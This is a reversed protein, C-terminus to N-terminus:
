DSRKESSLGTDASSPAFRSSNHSKPRESGAISASLWRAAQVPTLPKDERDVQLSAARMKDVTIKGILEELVRVVRPRNAIRAGLLLVADYPPFAQRPDSLLELDYAAIRGDSSFATIVEVERDRVAPYLFTSDFGRQALFQLSYTKQLRKWEPRQFFEYDGGITLTPAKPSLEVLSSLNLAHATDRRLALAYANEFGLGGLQRVGHTEALWQATAATTRWRPLPEQRKMANAWLTGTYEVYVDIHGQILAELIVGSGLSDKREVAFGAADLRQELLSALVYQETFTKSGIRVTSINTANRHTGPDPVPAQAESTPPQQGSTASSRPAAGLGGCLLLGSLGIASLLLRKRSRRQAASQLLALLGDVALALCAAAVCGVAVATSNQTQLGSFIYNGLSPQGVPTSLTAVGITWVGATRIGAVIVPLALPLEVMRLVQWPTMGVGIAAERVDSDISAVGTVTNRLPPLLSYLFLAALAPGFGFAGLVTVMAALLALGPITQVVGVGAVVLTRARPRHAVLLGTPVSVLVGLFLALSSLLIHSGFLNPLQELQERLNENM